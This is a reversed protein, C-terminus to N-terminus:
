SPIKPFSLIFEISEGYINNFALDGGFKKMTAKCYALGIGTGKFKTTFYPKFLNPLVDPSVGGATDKVKILNADKTEETTIFIDGKKNLHIQESSNKILNFLIKMLLISNGMLEFDYAINEHHIIDAEFSYAELARELVRRSSCKILNLESQNEKQANDLEVLSLNIFDDMTTLSNDLCKVFENEKLFNMQKKSILNVKKAGLTKAEDIIELFNPLMINLINSIGRITAIPTRLDHVIDGVLVMVTKRMEEESDAKAKSILAATEAEAAIIRAENSTEKEKILEQEINKQNTIDIAVGSIGVCDGKDNFIPFGNDIIWRIEGNPRIIRYNESYRAKEGLKEVRDALEHIPHYNQVDDPHLFTIWKEPDTYLEERPRGWIREYSPSIYQIRKLDASSIWYVHESHETFKSLFDGIKALSLNIGKKGM